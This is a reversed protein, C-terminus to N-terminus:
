ANNRSTAGSRSELEWVPMRRDRKSTTLRSESNCLVLCVHDIVPGDQLICGFASDAIALVNGLSSDTRRGVGDGRYPSEFLHQGITSAISRIRECQKVLHTRRRRDCHRRRSEEAKDNSSRHRYGDSRVPQRGGPVLVRHHVLNRRCHRHQFANRETPKAFQETQRIFAAGTEYRPRGDGVERRKSRSSVPHELPSAPVHLRVTEDARWRQGHDNSFLGMRRQDLRESQETETAPTSVTNGNVRLPAHDRGRQGPDLTRGDDARLGAVDVRACEVGDGIDAVHNTRGPRPHM